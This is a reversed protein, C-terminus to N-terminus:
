GTPAGLAELLESLTSEGPVFRLPNEDDTPVEFDQLHAAFVEDTVDHRIPDTRNARHRALIVDVPTDVYVLTLPVRERDALDRWLDRLVRPASTDDVLVTSGEAVLDRTRDRAIAATRIWEDLPIGQGGQLNRESNIADLSVVVAPLFDALIGAMTSKGSFSRGCLLVISV